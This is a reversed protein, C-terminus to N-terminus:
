LGNCRAGESCEPKLDQTRRTNWPEVKPVEAVSKPTSSDCGQEKLRVKPNCLFALRLDDHKKVCKRPHDGGRGFDM